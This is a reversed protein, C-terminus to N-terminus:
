TYAKKDALAEAYGVAQRKHALAKGRAVVFGEFLRKISRRVTFMGQVIPVTAVKTSLRRGSLGSIPLIIRSM